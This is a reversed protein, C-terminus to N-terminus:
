YMWKRVEHMSLIDGLENKLNKREVIRDIFGKELMFEATQFDDPLKQKITNQIVRRGAFGITAQPEALIIDGLMAFSASVGGTTPHTLVVIYLNGANSYKKLAVSVKAMQMLSLIGEQMRAGGSVTFKSDAGLVSDTSPANYGTVANATGDGAVAVGSATAKIGTTAPHNKIEPIAAKPPNEWENEVREFIAVNKARGPNKENPNKALLIPSKFNSCTKSAIPNPNAAM